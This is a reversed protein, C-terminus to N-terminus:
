RGVSTGEDCGKPFQAEIQVVVLRRLDLPALVEDLETRSLASAEPEVRPDGAGTLAAM